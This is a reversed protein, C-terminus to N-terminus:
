KPAEEYHRFADVARVLKAHQQSSEGRLYSAATRYVEELLQMRYHHNLLVKGVFLEDQGSERLRKAEELAIEVETDTPKPM